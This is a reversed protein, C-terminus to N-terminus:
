GHRREKELEARAITLKAIMLGHKLIEQRLEVWQEEPEPWEVALKGDEIAFTFGLAEARQIVAWAPEIDSDRM